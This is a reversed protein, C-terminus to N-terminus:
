PFLFDVHMEAVGWELTVIRVSPQPQSAHSARLRLHAIRHIPPLRWDGEAGTTAVYTESAHYESAAPGGGFVEISTTGAGIGALGAAWVTADGPLIERAVANPAGGAGPVARMCAVGDVHTRRLPHDLTVRAPQDASSTTSVAALGIFEVREPDGPEIALVDGAGIAQRDSLVLETDGAVAPRALRKAPAGLTFNRRRLSAGPVTRAAYAGSLMPMGDPAAAPSPLAIGDLRVWVGTVSVTANNLPGLTRSIVRGALRTARRRMNQDGALVAPTFDNPYAAPQAPLATRLELPLFGDAEVTLDLMPPTPMVDPFQLRPRGVIGVRGGPGSRAGAGALTTRAVLPVAPPVGTVEDVVRAQLIAQARAAVPPPDDPWFRWNAGDAIVTRVTM